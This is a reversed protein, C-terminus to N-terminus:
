WLHNEGSHSQIITHNATQNLDETFNGVGWTEYRGFNALALSDADDPSERGTRKKYDDKSEIVWKGKADFRYQITPLEELYIDDTLLCLDKKLDEALQFFIRAKLNLFKEKMKIEESSGPRGGPGAGFHIERVEVYDPLARELKAQNLADVVGSGVGTADVIVHIDRTDLDSRILNILEGTVQNADKMMLVKRSIVQYGKIKTIVTKDRGKRAVDVGISVRDTSKPVSTRYQALEVMGLSILTNDDQDPFEAFCKSVTLPHTLGCTLVMQMVWKVTLLHSNPTKYAILRDYQEDQNLSKLYQLEQVLDSMSYLGNAAFNPSEFCTLKVKKYAPNSFCKFFDCSKTTPNGIALFRVFKSTLLGELQKWMIPGIGTAEDFVILIAPAHFGQFSSATGQGEGDSMENRSTFGIAFWDDDIKWETTLMEGGLHYKSRAFGARIESWLLRKVQNFTPATTIVKAGIFTSCFWLIVKAALWTKGLNHASSVATREHDCVSQIIRKQYEESSTIGQIEELHVIPNTRYIQLSKSKM